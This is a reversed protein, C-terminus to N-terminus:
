PPWEVMEIETRSKRTCYEIQGSCNKVSSRSTNADIMHTYGCSNSVKKVCVSERRVMSSTHHKVTAGGAMVIGVLTYMNDIM